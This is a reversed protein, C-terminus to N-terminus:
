EGEKLERERERKREAGARQSDRPAGEAAQHPRKQRSRIAHNHKVADGNVADEM